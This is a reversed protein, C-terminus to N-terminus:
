GRRLRLMYRGSSGAPAGDVVVIGSGRVHLPRASRAPCGLSEYSASARQWCLRTGAPAGSLTATLRTSAGLSIAYGDVPDNSPQLSADVTTTAAGSTRLLAGSLPDAHPWDNPEQPDAPVRQTLAKRVDLAGYGWGANPLPSRAALARASLKLATAVQDAEWQTNRSWVLAAAGSVIPAAFSTGTPTIGTPTGPRILSPIATRLDSAPAALDVLPGRVGDSWLTSRGSLSTVGLVHPEHAPFGAATSAEAGTTNGVAAVVLVGAEQLARLSERLAPTARLSASVNVISAEGRERFWRLAKLLAVQLKDGTCAGPASIRASAIGVDPAVGVLGAQPVNGGILGAVATGHGQQDHPDPDGVFSAATFFARGGIRSLDVGTDAIGVTLGADMRASAVPLDVWDLPSVAPQGGGLLTICDDEAGTQVSLSRTGPAQRLRRLSAALGSRPLDVGVLGLAPDVERVVAAPPLAGPAPASAGSPLGVVISVLAAVAPSAM